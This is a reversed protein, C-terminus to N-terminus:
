HRRASRHAGAAGASRRRRRRVEDPSPGQQAQGDAPASSVVSSGPGAEQEFHNSGEAFQEFQETGAFVPIGVDEYRINPRFGDRDSVYDVVQMRGDPLLVRYQGQTLGNARSQRHGFDNGTHPDKVEYSFDYVIDQEDEYNDEARRSHHRAEQAQHADQEQYQQQQQYEDTAEAENDAIQHGSSGGDLDAGVQRRPRPGGGGPAAHHHGQGHTPSGPAALCVLAPSLLAVALVVLLSSPGDKRAM